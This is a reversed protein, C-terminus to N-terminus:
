PQETTKPHSRRFHTATTRNLAAKEDSRLNRNELNIPLSLDLFSEHRESVHYCDQFTLTSVLFDRFVGTRPRPHPRLSADTSSNKRTWSWTRISACTTGSRSSSPWSTVHPCKNTLQSTNRRHCSEVAPNCSPCRIPM